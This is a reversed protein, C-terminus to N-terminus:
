LGLVEKTIRDSAKVAGVLILLNLILEVVYNWVVTVPSLGMGSLVPPTMALSSFVVCALTIMVGEMCVGAFSRLYNRGVSESPQGAFTSFAIPSIAAYIYLRFMRGYVSLLMVFSLVIIVISGILTIIWLPISNWFDVQNIHDIIEQPLVTGNTQILGSSKMVTQVMGLGISFMGLLLDLGYEVAAEALAFRIFMKFIQEPRKMDSFGSCTKIVGMAFFLVLLGLGIGKLAGNVSQIVIWAGGGKFTEPGQILLNWIETMKSNWTNLASNLLSLYDKSTIEPNEGVGFRAHYNGM